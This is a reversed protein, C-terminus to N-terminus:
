NGKTPEPITTEVTSDFSGDIMRTTIKAGPAIEAVSRLIKGQEDTTLTWGRELSRRPDFASLLRRTGELQTAVVSLHRRAAPLL